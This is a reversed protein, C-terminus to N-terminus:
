RRTHDMIRLFARSATQALRPSGERWIEAAHYLARVGNANCFALAADGDEHVAIHEALPIASTCVCHREAHVILASAVVRAARPALAGLGLHACACVKHLLQLATCVNLAQEDGVYPHAECCALMAQIGDNNVITTIARAFAPELSSSSQLVLSISKTGHLAVAPLDYHHAVLQVVSGLDAASRAIALCSADDERLQDHLTEALNPLYQRQPNLLSNLTRRVSGNM